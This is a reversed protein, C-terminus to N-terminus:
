LGLRQELPDLPAAPGYRASRCRDVPLPLRLAFRCVYSVKDSTTMPVLRFAPLARAPWPRSSRSHSPRSGRILPRTSGVRSRPTTLRFAEFLRTLAAAGARDYLAAAELQLRFQFWVYNPGGVGSYLREFDDRTRYTFADPAAKAGLTPLTMLIPLSEPSREAVWCHLGLNAWLEQLWLRPFHQGGEHFVHTVEHVAILDFFPGLRIGGDGSGYVRALEPQDAQAVM